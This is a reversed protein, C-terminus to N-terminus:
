FEQLDVFVPISFGHSLHILFVCNECATKFCFGCFLGTMKCSILTYRGSSGPLETFIEARQDASFCGSCCSGLIGGPRLKQERGVSCWSPVGVVGARGPGAPILIGRTGVILVM